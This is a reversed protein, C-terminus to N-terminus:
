YRGIKRALGFRNRLDIKINLRGNKHLSYTAINRLPEIEELIGNKKEEKQNHKSSTSLIRKTTNNSKDEEGMAETTM